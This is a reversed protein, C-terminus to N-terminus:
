RCILNFCGVFLANAVLVGSSPPCDIFIFDQMELNQALAKQLLDGLHAASENLQELVQLRPGAVVLNLNDRV